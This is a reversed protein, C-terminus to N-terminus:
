PNFLVKEESLYNMGYWLLYLYFTFNVRYCAVFAWLPSYLYLEVRENVEASFPPTCAM